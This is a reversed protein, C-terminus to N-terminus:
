HLWGSPSSGNTLPDLLFLLRPHCIGQAIQWLGHNLKFRCHGALLHLEIKVFATQFGLDSGM